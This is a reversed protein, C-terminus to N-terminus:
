PRLAAQVFDLDVQKPALAGIKPRKRRPLVYQPPHRCLVARRQARDYAPWLEFTQGRCQGAAADGTQRQASGTLAARGV